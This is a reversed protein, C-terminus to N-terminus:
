TMSIKWDLTVQGENQESERGTLPDGSPRKMIGDPVFLRALSEYQQHDSYYGFDLVLRECAREIMLTDM